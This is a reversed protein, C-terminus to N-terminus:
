YAKHIMLSQDASLVMDAISNLTKIRDYMESQHVTQM